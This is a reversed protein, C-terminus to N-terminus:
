SNIIIFLSDTIGCNNIEYMFSKRWTADFAGELDAMISARIKGNSISDCM